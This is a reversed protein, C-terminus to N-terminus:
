HCKAPPMERQRVTMLEIENMMACYKRGKQTISLLRKVSAGFFFPQRGDIRVGRGRKPHRTEIMEILETKVLLGCLQKGQGTNLTLTMCIMSQPMAGKGALLNLIQRIL